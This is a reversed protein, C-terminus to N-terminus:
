GGGKRLADLKRPIEKAIVDELQRLVLCRAVDARNIGYIGGVLSEFIEVVDPAFRITVPVTKLPIKQKPM